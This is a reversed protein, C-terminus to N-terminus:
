RHSISCIFSCIYLKNKQWYHSFLTHVSESLLHKDSAM